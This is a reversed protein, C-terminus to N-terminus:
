NLYQKLTRAGEETTACKFYEGTTQSSYYIANHLNLPLLLLLTGHNLAALSLDADDTTYQRDMWLM